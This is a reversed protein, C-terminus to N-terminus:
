SLEVEAPAIVGKTAISTHDEAQQPLNVKDTVWGRHVVTGSYPGDGKVNGILRYTRPHETAQVIIQSGEEEQRIPKIAFFDKVVKQCGQHVVRAAAGVQEDPYQSVDDMIFDVLRGREQLLGLLSIATAAHGEQNKLTDCEQKKLELQQKADRFAVDMQEWKTQHQQLKEHLKTSEISHKQDQKKLQSNMEKLSQLEHQQKEWQEQTSQKLGELETVLKQNEVVLNNQNQIRKLIFAVDVQILMALIMISIPAFLMYEGPVKFDTVNPILIVGALIFAMLGLFISRM